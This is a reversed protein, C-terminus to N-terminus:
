KKKTLAENLTNGLEALFRNYNSKILFRKKRYFLDITKKQNPILKIFDKKSKITLIEGNFYVMSREKYVFGTYAFRDNRLEQKNKSHKKLISLSDGAFLVEYIGLDSSSTKDLNLINSNIFFSDHIQFSHIHEKVLAIAFYGTYDSLKIILQDDHIDYKMPINFYPQGGYIINGSTFDRNKFYQDNDEFTVYQEKFETGNLLNTNNIGIISDFWNYYNQLSSKNQSYLSASLLAFLLFSYRLLM